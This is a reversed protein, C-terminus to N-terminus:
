KALLSIRTDVLDRRAGTLTHYSYPSDEVTLRLTNWDPTVGKEDAVRQMDRLLGTLLWIAGEVDPISQGVETRGLKITVGM